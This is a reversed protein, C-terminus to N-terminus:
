SDIGRGGALRVVHHAADITSQRHAIVLVTVSPVLSTMMELVQSETADDLSSTAEDLVLLLPQRLLARAIAVRQREGGSLRLGQEGLVTDLGDTLSGAFSAAAQDLAAWCADDTTADQVSWTLNDRLTGPVLMTHQPVYAVHQRWWQLDEATLPSGDVLVQGSQPTLLGLALDASTSKGAGSHGTLVTIDGRPVTLSLDTVGHGAGPYHFTVDRFELMPIAPDAGIGSRSTKVGAPVERAAQGDATLAALDRVAPLSNALQGTMTVVRQVQGNLRAILVLIVVISTPPVSAWVSVLVLLSAAVAMGVSSVATVTTMRQTNALQVERADTFATSLRDAWVASADHARVLRLSDLSDTVVGQLHRSRESFLRGLRYAPRVSTAQVLAVVIVAVIALAAVAPSVLLAVAATAIALVLAVAGNMMQQFALGARVAGTTVVQIIDSRRLGLVFSWRAALIATFADQRLSDVLQQQIRAANVTATRSILAQGAALIVFALLLLWLPLSSLGVRGVLPVAITADPNAVSNVIPVLLLLSAGGLLGSVLLLALQLLVRRRDLRWASDILLRADEVLHGPRADAATEPPM